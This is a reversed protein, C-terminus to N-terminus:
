LWMSCDLGNRLEECLLMQVIGYVEVHWPVARCSVARCPLGTVARDLIVSVRMPTAKNSWADRWSTHLLPFVLEVYEQGRCYVSTFPDVKRGPWKLRPSRGGGGYRELLLSTPGLALQFYPLRKSGAVSWDRKRLRGAASSVWGVAFEDHLTLYGPIKRRSINVCGYVGLHLVLRKFVHLCGDLSLIFGWCEASVIMRINEHFITITGDTASGRCQAEWPWFHPASICANTLV